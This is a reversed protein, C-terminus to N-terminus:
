APGLARVHELAAQVRAGDAARIALGRDLDFAVLEGTVPGAALEARVAGRDLGAARLFDRALGAPDSGIAATRRPVAVVLERLVDEVACDIGELTLSTVARQAVLAPPFARQLVNVGIGAVYVPDEPDFERTEALVGALKAGRVVVDNPWELAAPALGLARVADLTALGLAITLGAGSWPERPRLVFSAYLGEQPPSEWARGQRGRGRTQGAAVHVDMHRARGAALEAFAVESTSTVLGHRVLRAPQPDAAM